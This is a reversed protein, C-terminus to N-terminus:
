ETSGHIRWRPHSLSLSQASGGCIEKLNIWKNVNKPVINVFVIKTVM